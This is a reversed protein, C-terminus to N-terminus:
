YDLRVRLTFENSPTKKLPESVKATALLENDAGYLGVTTIYSVPEDSADEKVRIQSSSLYTPNSSYNFENANARCFHITSNLETTNAFYLNRIRHRLADAAVQISSSALTYDIGAADSQMEVNGPGAPGSLNSQLIGGSVCWQKAGVADVSGTNTKFISSSLVAVGAQYFLLGVALRNTDGIVSEDITGSLLSRAYLPAYEGAPSDVYYADSGSADIIRLAYKTQGTGRHPGVGRQGTYQHVMDLDMFFTGKQIEDKALLRSFNVFYVSDMMRGGGTQGQGGGVKDNFTKIAGTVDHGMLVQAMQNYIQNKQTAQNNAAANILSSTTYGTSIDFIHNASSSLYPYDYVMQFMGHSPNKINPQTYGDTYGARIATPTASTGSIITGTVPIAEHLKTRSTQIDSSPNLTKFSDAM